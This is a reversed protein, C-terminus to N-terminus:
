RLRWLSFGPISESSTYRSMVELFGPEERLWDLLEFSPDPVFSIPSQKIYILKPQYRRLDDVVATLLEQRHRPDVLAGPLPWLCSFRSAWRVRRDMLWGFFTQMDTDLVVVSDGPGLDRLESFAPPIGTFESSWRLGDSDPDRELWHQGMPLAVAVLLAPTVLRRWWGDLGLVVAMGLWGFLVAPLLQYSWGKAQVVSGVLGGVWAVLLLWVPGRGRRIFVAGALLAVGLWLARQAWPHGFIEGVGIEYAGYGRWAQEMTSVFDGRFPMVFFHAAYLVLGVMLAVNEPWALRPVRRQALLMGLAVFLLVLLFFPKFAFGVAALGGAVWGSGKGLSGDGLRVMQTVLYPLSLIVM